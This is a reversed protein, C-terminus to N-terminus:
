NECEGEESDSDSLQARYNSLVDQEDESLWELDPGGWYDRKNNHEYEIVVIDVDDDYIKCIYENEMLLSLQTAIAQYMKDRDGQYCSKSFVISNVNM